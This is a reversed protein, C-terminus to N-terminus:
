ERPDESFRSLFDPTDKRARPGFSLNTEGGEFGSVRRDTIASSERRSLATLCM